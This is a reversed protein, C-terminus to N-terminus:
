SCLWNFRNREYEWSGNEVRSWGDDFNCYLRQLNTAAKYFDGGDKSRWVEYYSAGPVEDWEVIICEIHSKVHVHRPAEAAMTQCPVLLGSIGIMYVASRVVTQIVSRMLMM